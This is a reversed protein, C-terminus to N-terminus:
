VAKQKAKITNKKEYNSNIIIEKIEVLQDYYPLYASNGSNHELTLILTEVTKQTNPIFEAKNIQLSKPLENKEFWEKLQKLSEM